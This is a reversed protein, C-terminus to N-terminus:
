ILDRHCGECAEFYNYIRTKDTNLAMDAKVRDEISLLAWVSLAPLEGVLDGRLSCTKKGVDLTKVKPPDVDVNTVALVEGTFPWALGAL